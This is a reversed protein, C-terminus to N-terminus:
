AAYYNNYFNEKQEKMADYNKSSPDSYTNYGVFDIKGDVSAGVDGETESFTKWDVDSVYLYSAFEAADIHDDETNLNLDNFLQTYLEEYDASYEEPIGEGASAMAIFEEKSWKGDGDEDYKDIYEQSFDKLDSSYTSLDLEFMQFGEVEEGALAKEYNDESNTWQDFEDARTVADEKKSTSIFSDTEPLVIKAGAYILNANKIGNEKVILDVTEQIEKNSQCNYNNKAINWLNDSGSINYNM